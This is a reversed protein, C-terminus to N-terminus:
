NPNNLLIQICSLAKEESEGIQHVLGLRYAESATFHEATLFYYRAAREGIAAVV